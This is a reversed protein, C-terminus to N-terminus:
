AAARWVATSESIVRLTGRASGTGDLTELFAALNRAATEPEIPAEVTAAFGRRALRIRDPEGAAVTIELREADELGARRLGRLYDLARELAEPDARRGAARVLPLADDPEGRAPIVRLDECLGYTRGAIEVRAVPRCERVDIRVKGPWPRRVRVRDVSPHARVRREAAARDLGLWSEGARVAALEAIEEPDAAEAGRVTVERVVLSPSRELVRWGARLGWGSLAAAAVAMAAIV